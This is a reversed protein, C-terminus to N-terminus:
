KKKKHEAKMKYMAKDSMAIATDMKSDKKTITYSGVSMKLAFDKNKYKKANSIIKKVLVAGEYKSMYPIIALFEDGGMRFLYSPEPLVGKIADRAYCIYKDGALHGYKDNIVKLGDCDISVVTLPVQLKGEHINCLENFFERNYAGTM